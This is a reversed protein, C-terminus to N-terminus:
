INQSLKTNPVSTQRDWSKEYTHGLEPFCTPLIRKFIFSNNLTLVGTKFGRGENFTLIHNRFGWDGRPIRLLFRDSLQGEDKSFFPSPLFILKFNFWTNFWFRLLTRLCTHSEYYITSRGQFCNDRQKPTTRLKNHFPDRFQPTSRSSSRSKSDLSRNHVSM